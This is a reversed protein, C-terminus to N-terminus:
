PIEGAMCDRLALRARSLRSRVTGLATEQIEAIREYSLEENVRLALAARWAAPLKELCKRLLRGLEGAELRALPGATEPGPLDPVGEGPGGGLSLSARRLREAGRARHNLARNVAIRHLWTGFRSGGRFRALGKQAAVFVEQVVDEADERHRLIRWAVAWVQELHSRVLEEFAQREGRRARQVLAEEEHPVESPRREMGALIGCPPDFREM